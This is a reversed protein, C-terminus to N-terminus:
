LSSYGLGKCRYIHSILQVASAKLYQQNVIVLLSIVTQVRKRTEEGVGTPSHNIVRSVTAKSVNCINAIEEISYKRKEEEM